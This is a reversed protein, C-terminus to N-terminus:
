KVNQKKKPHNEEVRLAKGDSDVLYGGLSIVKTKRKRKEM